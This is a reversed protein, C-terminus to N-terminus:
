RASEPKLIRDIQARADLLHLRSTRDSTRPVAAALSRDLDLLEGRLLARADPANLGGLLVALQPPIGAPLAPATPNIKSGLLELYSRQLRRRYPDIAAGSALERWIGRRVDGLMEGLTYVDSGRAALAENEVMRQLRANDLLTSLVRRQAGGIRELSGTAEIRRLISTDLLYEPTEFANADLFAVAARQRSEPVATYVVGPQGVVKEQKSLGGPIRAVHGLETAWQSVLRGYIEELDDYTEGATATTAPQVLKAVRRINKLGLATARVADADGVAENAEGPDAGQLGADSAFRYWPITDQM